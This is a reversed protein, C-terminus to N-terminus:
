SLAVARPQRLSSDAAKLRLSSMGDRSRLARDSFGVEQSNPETADPSAALKNNRRLGDKCVWMRLPPNNRVSSPSTKVATCGINLTQSVCSMLRQAALAVAAGDAARVEVLLEMGVLGM